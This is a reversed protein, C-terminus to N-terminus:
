TAQMGMQRSVTAQEGPLRSMTGWSLPNLRNEESGRSYRLASWRAEAAVGSTIKGEGSARHSVRVPQITGVLATCTQRAYAVLLRGVNRRLDARPPALQHNKKRM